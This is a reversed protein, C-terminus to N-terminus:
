MVEMEDICGHWTANNFDPNSSVESFYDRGNWNAKVDYEAAHDEVFRITKVKTKKKNLKTLLRTM